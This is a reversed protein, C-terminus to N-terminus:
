QGAAVLALTVVGGSGNTVTVTGTNFTVPYLSNGTVNNWQPAATQAWVTVTPQTTFNSISV